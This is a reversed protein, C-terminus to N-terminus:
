IANADEMRWKLRSAFIERINKDSKEHIHKFYDHMLKKNAQIIEEHSGELHIIRAACESLKSDWFIDYIKQMLWARVLYDIVKAPSPEITIEDRTLRKKKLDQVKGFIDGCPLIRTVDVRQVTLSLFRPYSVLVSGIRKAMFRGILLDRVAVARTYTIDDGIGPLVTFERAHMESLYRAGREGIVVLEDVDSAQELGASIVQSNLSGTFGEDSTILVVAKPLSARERLFPHKLGKVDLASMFEELNLKYDEFGKRKQQFSRFQSATAGKLVEIMEQLERAFRLNERLKILPIM